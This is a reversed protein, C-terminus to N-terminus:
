RYSFTVANSTGSSTAITVQASSAGPSPPPVTVTCVAQSPCSTATVQGNFSAVISGDSSLFQSGNVTLTQGPSGSAPSLSTIQPPSGPTSPVNTTTTAKGIGKTATSAGSLGPQTTSAATPSPGASGRSASVALAIGSGVVLVAVLAVAVSLRRESEAKIGDGQFVRPPKAPRPPGDSGLRPVPNGQSVRARYVASEMAGLARRGPQTRNPGDPPQGSTM